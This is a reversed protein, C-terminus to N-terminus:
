AIPCMLSPCMCPLIEWAYKAAREHACNMMERLSAFQVYILQCVKKTHMM